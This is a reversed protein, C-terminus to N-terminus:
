NPSLPQSKLKPKPLRPSKVRLSAVQPSSHRCGCGYSGVLNALDTISTGSNSGLNLEVNQDPPIAALKAIVAAPDFAARSAELKTPENSQACPPAVLISIALTAIAITSLTSFSRRGVM